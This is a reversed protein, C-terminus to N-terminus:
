YTCVLWGGNVSAFLDFVNMLGGFVFMIYLLSSLFTPSKAGIANEVETDGGRSGEM